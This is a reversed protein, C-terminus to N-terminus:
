VSYSTMDEDTLEPSIADALAREARKDLSSGPTGLEEGRDQNAYFLARLWIAEEAPVTLQTTLDTGVFDPQPIIWRMLVTIGQAPVPDVVLSWYTGNRRLAFYDLTSATEDNDTLILRRAKELPMERLRYETSGDQVAFVQPQAGTRKLTSESYELDHADRGREYLLRSRRTVDIDSTGTVDTVSTTLLNIQQGTPVSVTVTNRLAHWDWADEVERKATNLFQLVLLDDPDSTNTGSITDRRLERLVNNMLTQVTAM